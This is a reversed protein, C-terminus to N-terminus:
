VIFIIFFLFSIGSHFNRNRMEVVKLVLSVKHQACVRQCRVCHLVLLRCAITPTVVFHASNSRLYPTHWPKWLLRLWRNKLQQKKWLYFPSLTVLSCCLFALHTFPYSTQNKWNCFFFFFTRWIRLNPIKVKKRFTKLDKTKGLNLVQALCLFHMCCEWRICVWELGDGCLLLLAKGKWLWINM